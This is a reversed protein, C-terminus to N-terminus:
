GGGRTSSEIGSSVVKGDASFMVVFLKADGGESIKWELATQQKLPQAQERGPRGLLALVDPRSMGPQIKSFTDQKLVNRVSVLKGDPGLVAFFTAVGEPGKPFQLLKGGDKQEMVVDPLGLVQGVDLETSQGPKLKDIGPWELLRGQQDCAALLVLMMISWLWTKM